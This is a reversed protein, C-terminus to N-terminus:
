RTLLLLLMVHRGHQSAVAGVQTLQRYAAHRLGIGALVDTRRGVVGAVGVSLGVEGDSGTHPNM